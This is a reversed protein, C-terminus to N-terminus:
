AKIGLQKECEEIALTAPLYGGNAIIYQGQPNNSFEQAQEKECRELRQEDSNYYIWSGVVILAVVIGLVILLGAKGSIPKETVVDRNGKTSRWRAGSKLGICTMQEWGEYDVVGCRGYLLKTTLCLYPLRDV